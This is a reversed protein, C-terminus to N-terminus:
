VSKRGYRAWGAAYLNGGHADAAVILPFDEVELRYVAEAGLEAFAVTEARRIRAALLAGAGGVAAFYVAGLRQMSELVSAGREGKGIMGRLGLEMLRPAYQDMRGSTTPGASGIPMGPPAPCPGAYYIIQGRLPFPLPLGQADMEVLRKHAADRATYLCGCLLVREGISLARAMDETFPTRLRIPRKEM